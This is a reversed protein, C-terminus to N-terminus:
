QYNVFLFYEPIRGIIVYNIYAVILALISLVNLILKKNKVVYILYTVLIPEVSYFHGNFRFAFLAFDSFLILMITGFYYANFLLHYFVPLKNSNRTIFILLIIVIIQQITKINELGVKYVYEETNIYDIVIQPLIGYSTLYDITSYIIGLKFILIACLLGLIIYKTKIKFNLFYLFFSLIAVYQVFTAIIVLFFFKWKEGKWLYYIMPLVLASAFGMRLGNWEKFCIEHSLYLLFALYYYKTFKRFYFAHILVATSSFFLFISQSNLGLSKFFSSILAFLIGKSHIISENASLFFEDLTPILVYIRTYEDSNGRLGIILMVVIVILYYIYLMYKDNKPRFDNLIVLITYFFIFLFYYIM